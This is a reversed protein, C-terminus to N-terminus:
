KKIYSNLQLHQVYGQDLNLTNRIPISFFHGQILLCGFCLALPVLVLVVNHRKKKTSDFECLINQSAM